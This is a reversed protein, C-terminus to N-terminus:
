QRDDQQHELPIYNTFDIDYKEVIGKQLFCMASTPVSVNKFRYNKLSAQKDYCISNNLYRDLTGADLPKMNMRILRERYLPYIYKMRMCVIGSIYEIKPQDDKVKIVKGNVLVDRTIEIMKHEMNQFKIESEVKIQGQRLMLGVTEFFHQVEDATNMMVTQREIAKEILATLQSVNFPIKLKPELTTFAAVIASSILIQREIVESKQYTNRFLSRAELFNKRYNEKFYERHSLIELLVCSLNNAEMGILTDYAKRTEESINKLTEFELLLFRSFLAPECNPMEQGCVIATSRVVTSFTKNTNDMRARAYGDGDHLGKLMAILDYNISNKYEDFVIISNSMQALMRVFSKPTSKGELKPPEKYEGFLSTLSTAMTTKGSGKQGFLFILPLKNATSEKVVDLFIAMLAFAMGVKGNDGYSDIFTKAWLEFTVDNPKYVSSKFNKSAEDENNGDLLPVFYNKNELTTVNFENLMFMKNQSYSYIGNSFAFYNAKHGVYTIEDCPMELEYLKRKIRMLESKNGLYLFNGHKELALMFREVSILEEIAFDTTIIKNSTNTLKVIRKANSGKILYLVEIVFNTIPVYHTTDRKVQQMIIRNNEEYFGFQDILEWKTLAESEKAIPPEPPPIKGKPNIEFDDILSSLSILAEGVKSPPLEPPSVQTIREKIELYDLIAGISKM